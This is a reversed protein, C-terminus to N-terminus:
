YYRNDSQHLIGYYDNWLPPPNCNVCLQQHKKKEENFGSKFDTFFGIINQILGM